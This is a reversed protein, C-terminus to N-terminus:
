VDFVKVMLVMHDNQYNDLTEVGVRFFSRNQNLPEQDKKTQLKIIKVIVRPLFM